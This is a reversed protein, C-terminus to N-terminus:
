PALELVERELVQLRVVVCRDWCTRALFDTRSVVM